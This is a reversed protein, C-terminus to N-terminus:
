HVPVAPMPDPPLGAPSDEAPTPGSALDSPASSMMTTTLTAEMVRTRMTLHLAALAEPALMGIASRLGHPVIVPMIQPRLGDSYTYWSDSEYVKDLRAAHAMFLALDSQEQLEARQVELCTITKTVRSQLEAKLAAGLMTSVIQSEDDHIVMRYVDDAHRESPLPPRAPRTEPAPPLPRSKSSTCAGM